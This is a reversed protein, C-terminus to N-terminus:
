LNSGCVLNLLVQRVLPRMYLELTVFTPTIKLRLVCRQM